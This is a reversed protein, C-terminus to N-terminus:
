LGGGHTDYPPPRRWGSFAEIRLVSLRVGHNRRKAETPVLDLQRSERSGDCWVVHGLGRDTRVKGLDTYRWALDLTTGQGVAM